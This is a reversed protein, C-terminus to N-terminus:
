KTDRDMRMLLLLMGLLVINRLIAFQISSANAVGLCGCDIDLGRLAASALIGEFFLLLLILLSAAAKRWPKLFLALAGTVEIWPVWLAAMWAPFGDVIRYRLVSEYFAAPDVVKLGGAILFFGGVLLILGWKLKTQM